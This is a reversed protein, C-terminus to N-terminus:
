TNNTYIAQIYVTHLYVKLLLKSYILHLFQQRMTNSLQKQVTATQFFFLLNQFPFILAKWLLPHTILLHLFSFFVEKSIIIIIIIISIQLAGVRRSLASFLCVCMIYM